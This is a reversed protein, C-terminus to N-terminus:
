IKKGVYHAINSIFMDNTCEQKKLSEGFIEQCIPPKSAINQTTEERVYQINRKVSIYKMSYKEAIKQYCDGIACKPNILKIKIAEVVIYYSKTEPKCGLEQLVEEIIDGKIKRHDITEDVIQVEEIGSLLEIVEQMRLNLMKLEELLTEKNTKKNTKKDAM